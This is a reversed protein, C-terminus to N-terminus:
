PTPPQLDLIQRFRALTAEDPGQRVTTHEGRQASQSMASRIAEGLDTMQRVLLIPRRSALWEAFRVQHDDVVEGLDARRPVVVPSKGHALVRFISGPGAHCVVASAAGILEDQKEVSVLGLMDLNNPVYGYTASQVTVPREIAGQGALEDLQRILADMPRHYTGLTVYIM